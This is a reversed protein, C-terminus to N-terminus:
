GKKVVAGYDRIQRVKDIGAEMSRIKSEAMHQSKILAQERNYTWDNKGVFHGLRGDNANSFFENDIVHGQDFELIGQTLAYKTVYVTSKIPERTTM